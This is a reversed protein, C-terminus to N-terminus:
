RAHECESYLVGKIVTDVFYSSNIEPFSFATNIQALTMYCSYKNVWCSRTKIWQVFM